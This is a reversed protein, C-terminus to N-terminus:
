FCSLMEIAIEYVLGQLPRYCDRGWNNVLLLCLYMNTHLISLVVVYEKQHVLGQLLSSNPDSKKFTYIKMQGAM